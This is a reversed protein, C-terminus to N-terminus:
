MENRHKSMYVKEESRPDIVEKGILGFRDQLLMYFWRAIHGRCSRAAPQVLTQARLYILHWEASACEPRSFWCASPVSSQISAM